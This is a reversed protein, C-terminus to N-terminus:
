PLTVPLDVYLYLSSLSQWCFKLHQYPETSSPVQQGAQCGPVWMTSPPPHVGMFQGRIKWTCQLMHRYLCMCILLHLSFLCCKRKWELSSLDVNVSSDCISSCATSIFSFRSIKCQGQTLSFLSFLPTRRTHFLLFQDQFLPKEKTMNRRHVRDWTACRTSTASEMTTRECHGAGM